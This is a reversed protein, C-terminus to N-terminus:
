LNVLYLIIGLFVIFGSSPSFGCSTGGDINAAYAMLHPILNQEYTGTFLHAWPGNAFVAVDDGGHTELYLPATAPAVYDADSTNVVKTFDQRGNDKFHTDYGPGNAYNLTALPLGDNAQTFALGFIDNGRVPYGSISMTHAHDATVVILTDAESTKNLAVEVAKALELTEDLAKRPKTDHHAHDIRGGEVFLFFGNGEYSLVDIARNVMDSLSPKEPNKVVDLHYKCHDAEFLGLLYETNEPNVKYLEEKNTVYQSGRNPNTVSRTINLWDAILNKHDLRQGEKSEHDKPLFKQRGGGLIVKFKSGPEEHILQYAIDHCKEPNEKDEMIDADCEWTREATRAYAGAPSAHTVRTTTVIGTAMDKDQAWKALSFVHNNKDAMAICKKRGVNASVGITGTNAKVGCLYATASCASDATQADVCYTKSLGTYPFKEFSLQENENGKMVRAAALTPISMGDGLFMIINKAVNTNIKRNVHNKLQTKAQQWWFSNEKENSSFVARSYDIVPHYSDQKIERAESRFLVFLLVLIKFALNM